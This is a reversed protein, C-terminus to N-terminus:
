QKSIRKKFKLSLIIGLRLFFGLINNDCMFKIM